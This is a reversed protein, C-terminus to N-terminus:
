GGHGWVVGLVGGGLEQGQTALGVGRCVCYGESTSQTMPPPM